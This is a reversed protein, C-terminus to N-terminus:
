SHPKVALIDAKEIVPPQAFLDGAKAMLAAALRGTLHENRAEDSPFTDFIGFTTSGLRIAYWTTTNPEDLVISLGSCLFSEVEQVKEPKAELRVFLGVKIM